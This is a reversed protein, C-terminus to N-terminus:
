DRSMHLLRALLSSMTHQPTRLPQKNRLMNHYWREWGAALRRCLTEPGEFANSGGTESQVCSSCTDMGHRAAVSQRCAQQASFQSALM